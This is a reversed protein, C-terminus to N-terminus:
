MQLVNWKDKEMKWKTTKWKDAEASVTAHRNSLLSLHVISVSSHFIV